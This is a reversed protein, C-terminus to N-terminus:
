KTKTLRKQNVFNEINFINLNGGIEMNIDVNLDILFALNIIKLYAFLTRTNGVKFPQIYWIKKILNLIGEKNDPNNVCIYNIRELITELVVKEIESLGRVGLEDYLDCFLFNNLKELYEFNFKDNNFTFYEDLLALKTNIIKREINEFRYSNIGLKNDM